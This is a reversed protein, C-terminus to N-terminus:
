EAARWASSENRRMTFQTLSEDLDANKARAFNWGAKLM